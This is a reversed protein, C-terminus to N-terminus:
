FLVFKFLYKIPIYKHYATVVIMGPLLHVDINQGPCRGKEGGNGMERRQNKVARGKEVTVAM